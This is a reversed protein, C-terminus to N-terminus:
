SVVINDGPHFLRKLVIFQEFLYGGCCLSRGWRNGSHDALFPLYGWEYVKRLTLSIIQLSATASGSLHFFARGSEQSALRGCLLQARWHPLALLLLAENGADRELSDM